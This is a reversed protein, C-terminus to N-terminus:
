GCNFCRINPNIRNNETRNRANNEYNSNNNGFTVRKGRDNQRGNNNNNRMASYMNAYNVTLQQMQKALEEIASEPTPTINTSKVPKATGTVSPGLQAYNFGTEANRAHNVLTNLDNAQQMHVMPTIAPNLGFLFMRKQQEIPINNNRDVRKLLKKFRSAYSDVNEGSTQRMTLLEQYWLNKRTDNAFHGLFLDTFNNGGNGGTNWNNGMANSNADFWDAAADRLYAAAIEKKRRETTWNNTAAAKDFIALWEVPDEDDKGHFYEVKAISGGRGIM